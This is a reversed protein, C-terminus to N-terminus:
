QVERAYVSKFFEIDNAITKLGYELMYCQYTVINEIVESLTNSGSVSLIHNTLVADNQLRAVNTQVTCNKTSIVQEELKKLSQQEKALDALLKELVSIRKEKPMMGLYFFKGEEMNKAKYWQIPTQMWEVFQLVGDPTIHYEKKLFGKEEFERIFIKQNTLLKKLAAQISGLSNSCVTGLVKEVYTKIEYITMSKTLLMSLILNEM